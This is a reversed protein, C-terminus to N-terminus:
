GYQCLVRHRLNREVPGVRELQGLVQIQAFDGADRHVRLPVDEDQRAAVGRARGVGGGRRLQELEIGFSIEHALDALVQVGPREAMGYAHVRVVVDPDRVLSRVHHDLEVGPATDRHHEPALLFCRVPFRRRELTGIRRQRMFVPAESLHGVDGEVRGAVGIDAVSVDIRADGLHVPVAFPQFRPAALARLGALEVRRVRDGGVRLAVDVDGVAAVPADLHEVALPRELTLERDVNGVIRLRAGRDAVQRIERLDLRPAPRLRHHGARRPRHADRGPRLLHEVSGVRERAAHELQGQVSLQQAHEAFGPLLQLLEAPDM